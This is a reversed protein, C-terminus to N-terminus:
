PRLLAALRGLEVPRHEARCPSGGTRLRVLGAEPAGCPAGAAEPLAPRGRRMRPMRRPGPGTPRACDGVWRPGLVAFELLVPRPLPVPPVCRAPFLTPGPVDVAVLRPRSILGAGAATCARAIWRIAARHLLCRVGSFRYLGAPAAFTRACYGRPFSRM